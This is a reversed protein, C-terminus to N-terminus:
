AIGKVVDYGLVIMTVIRLSKGFGCALGVNSVLEAKEKEKEIDLGVVGSLM